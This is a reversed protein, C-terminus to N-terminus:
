LLSQFFRLIFPGFILLGAGAAALCALFVLGASIDKILRIKEDYKVCVYNMIKEILTNLLEFIMVMFIALWIVIREFRSLPLYFMLSIALFAFLAMWRFGRESSFAGRLGILASQFSQLLNKNKIM